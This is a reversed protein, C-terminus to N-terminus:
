RNGGRLDVGRVEIARPGKPADVHIFEVRQHQQLEDFQLSTAQMASRHFFRDIGDDGTIYGFGMYLARIAGRQVPAADDPRPEIRRQAKTTM